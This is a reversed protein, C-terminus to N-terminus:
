DTQSIIRVTGHLHAGASSFRLYGGSLKVAGAWSAAQSTQGNWALRGDIWVSQHQGTVPIDIAGSTKDPITVSMEFKSSSPNQRWRVTIPGHPTPVQGESWRVGGPHPQVLWQSFGASTPQVGLLGNTLEPVVGTSWGHAMSTYAGEYPQCGATIGEWDTIGPDNNYMCGYLRDIENLASGSDGVQFRAMIEPFSTFAYVRTTGDSVVSDNDWFANGYPTETNASLYSLADQARAGSAVGAVVAWANADQPHSVPGVNSDLYAV